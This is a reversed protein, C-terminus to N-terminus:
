TRLLPLLPLAESGPLLRAHVADLPLGLHRHLATKFLARLDTTARLDRGDTRQQPALGPWDALVRGGRVAGGLALAVSAGGHDTGATGNVAVTRGFETVVLILSRQWLDGTPPASLGQHLAALLGDLAALHGATGSAGGLVGLQNAHTDWGGMEMVALQPGDERALFAAAHEALLGLRGTVGGAMGGNTAAAAGAMAAAAPGHLELARQFAPNLSPDAAYLLAVRQALDAVAQPAPEARQPPLWTDVAAAGRLVLPVSAQFAIGRSRAVAPDKAQPMETLARGLWGTDLAFPRTAGSELMQQADFHSRERYPLGIAHLVAAEGRGYLAHLTRLAPHLAFTETLPPAPAEGQALLGRAEAFGPDGPAPVAALGDLGGRLIVLVLRPTGPPAAGALSLTAAPLLASAAAGGLAARLLRRRDTHWASALAPHAPRPPRSM